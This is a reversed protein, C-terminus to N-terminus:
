KMQWFTAMSEPNDNSFTIPTQDSSLVHSFPITAAGYCVGRPTDLPM